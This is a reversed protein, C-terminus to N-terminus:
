FRQFSFKNIWNINHEVWRLQTRLNPATLGIRDLLASPTGEFLLVGYCLPTVSLGSGDYLQQGYIRRM